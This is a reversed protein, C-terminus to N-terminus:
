SFMEELKKPERNRITYFMIPIPIFLISILNYLLYNGVSFRRYIRFTGKIMGLYVIFYCVVIPVYMIQHLWLIADGTFRKECFLVYLLCLILVIHVEIYFALCKKVPVSFVKFTGAIKGLFYFNVFPIAALYWHNLSLSKALFMLGLGFYM